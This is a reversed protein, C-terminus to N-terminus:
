DNGGGNGNGNGNGNNAPPAPPTIPDVPQVPLEPIPDIVPPTYTHVDCVERPTTGSVFLDNSVTGAIYCQENPIGGSEICFSASTIGSPRSIDKVEHGQHLYEMIKGYATQTIYSNVRGNSGPKLIPSPRDSGIWISASYYPSLGAFWLDTALNENNTTATGTKGAIPMATLRTRPVNNKVIDKMVDYLLYANQPSIVQESKPINDLIINGSSDTVKTYLINETVIGSNGFAGYAGAMILPNGGDKNMEFNSGIAFIATGKGLATLNDTVQIGFKEAFSRSINLRDAGLAYYTRASVTNYSNVIAKRISTYGTYRFNVNNPWDDREGAVAKHMEADARKNIQKDLASSGLTIAGTELAPGYITLPKTTSGVPRLYSLTFTPSYYSRNPTSPTETSRGGILVKVQGTRYDVAAFAAEAEKREEEVVMTGKGRDFVEYKDMYEANINQFDALTAQAFEQADRDMTSHIILGGYSLLESIEEDTYGKQSKLDQTVQDIVPRTFYEYNYKDSVISTQHFNLGRELKNM